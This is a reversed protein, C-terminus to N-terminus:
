GECTEAVYSWRKGADLCADIAMSERSKVWFVAAIFAIGIAFFLRLKIM